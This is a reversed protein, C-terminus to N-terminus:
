IKIKLLKFRFDDKKFIAMPLITALPMKHDMPSKIFIKDLTRM